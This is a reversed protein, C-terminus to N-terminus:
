ISLLLIKLDLFRKNYRGHDEDMAEQAITAQERYSQIAEPKTLFYQARDEEPARWSETLPKQTKGDVPNTPTYYYKSPLYGHPFLNENIRVEVPKINREFHKRQPIYFVDAMWLTDGVALRGADIEAEVERHLM